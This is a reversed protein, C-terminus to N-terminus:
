RKRSTFFPLLEAEDRHVSKAFNSLPGSLTAHAGDRGPLSAGNSFSAVSGRVQNALAAIEATHERL